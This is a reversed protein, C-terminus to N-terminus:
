NVWILKEQARTIATYLWKVGDQGRPKSNGKLYVTAWESGQSKHVTMAYAYAAVAFGYQLDEPLEEHVEAVKAADLIPEYLTIEDAFGADDIFASVNHAGNLSDIVDEVIATSGNHWRGAVDRGYFLLMDQEAPAPTTDGMAARVMRNAKVRDLNTFCLYQADGHWISALAHRDKKLKVGDIQEINFEDIWEPSFRATERIRTALALVANGKAQRHVETLVLDLNDGFVPRDNVPPLQAPDGVLVVDADTLAQGAIEWTKKGIMSAEDVVVRTEYPLPEAPEFGILKGKADLVAKQTLRHFTRVDTGRPMKSRLVMAAKNTPAAFIISPDCRSAEALVTTKGTGAFGGIQIGNRGMLILDLAKTQQPTLKM